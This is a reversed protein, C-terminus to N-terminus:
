FMMLDYTNVTIERDAGGMPATIGNRSRIEHDSVRVTKSNPMEVYVSGNGTDRVIQGGLKVLRRATNNVLIKNRAAENLEDAYLGTVEEYLKMANPNKTTKM